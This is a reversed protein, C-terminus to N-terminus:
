AAPIGTIEHTEKSGVSEGHQYAKGWALALQGGIAEPDDPSRNGLREGQGLQQLALIMGNAYGRNYWLQQDGPNDLFGDTEERLRDVLELLQTLLEEPVTEDPASM